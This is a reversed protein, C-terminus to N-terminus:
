ISNKKIIQSIIQIRIIFITNLKLHDMHKGLNCALIYRYIYRFTSTYWKNKSREQQAVEDAVNIVVYNIKKM